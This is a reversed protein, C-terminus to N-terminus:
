ILNMNNRSFTVVWGINQYFMEPVVPTIDIASDIYRGRVCAADDDTEIAQLIQIVLDLCQDSIILEEAPDRGANNFPKAVTFALYLSGNRVRVKDPVSISIRGYEVFLFFDKMNRLRNTVITEDTGFVFDKIEPIAPSTIGQFYAKLTDYGTEQSTTRSFNKLIGDPFKAFYKIIDTILTM